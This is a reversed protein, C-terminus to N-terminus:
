EPRVDQQEEKNNKSDVSEFYNFAFNLKYWAEIDKLCDKQDLCYCLRTRIYQSVIQYKSWDPYNYDTEGLPLDHNPLETAAFKLLAIIDQSSLMEAFEEPTMAQNEYWDFFKLETDSISYSSRNLYDNAWCDYLTYWNEIEERPAITDILCCLKRTVYETCIDSCDYPMYEFLCDEDGEEEDVDNWSDPDWFDFPVDWNKFGEMGDLLVCLEYPTFDYTNEILKNETSVLLSKYKEHNSDDIFKKGYLDIVTM